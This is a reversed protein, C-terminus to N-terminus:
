QYARWRNYASEAVLLAALANQRDDGELHDRAFAQALDIALDLGDAAEGQGVQELASAIDVLLIQAQEDAVLEAANRLDIAAIEAERQWDEATWQSPGACAALVLLLTTLYTKV